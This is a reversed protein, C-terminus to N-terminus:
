QWLKKVKWQRFLKRRLVISPCVFLAQCFVFFALLVNFSDTLEKLNTIVLVAHFIYGYFIVIVVGIMSTLHVVRRTWEKPRSFSDSWKQVKEGFNFYGIMLLAMMLGSFCSIIIATLFNSM